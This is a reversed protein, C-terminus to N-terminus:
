RALPCAQASRSPYIRVRLLGYSSPGVARTTCREPISLRHVGRSKRVFRQGLEFGLELGPVPRPGGAYRGVLKALGQPCRKGLGRQAFGRLKLASIGRAQSRSARGPPSRGISGGGSRAPTRRARADANLDRTSRANPQKRPRTWGQRTALIPTLARIEQGRWCTPACRRLM